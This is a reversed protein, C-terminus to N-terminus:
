RASMTAFVVIALGLVAAGIVLWAPLRPGAVGSSGATRLAVAGVAMTAIGLITGVWELTLLTPSMPAESIPFVHALDLGYVAVYCAGATLPAWGARGTRWSRWALVFSSLGLLTLFINFGTLVAVSYGPFSRTEVLGGPIMLTLNIASLALLVALLRVRTM